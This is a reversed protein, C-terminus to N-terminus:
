YRWAVGMTGGSWNRVLNQPFIQNQYLFSLNIILRENYFPMKIYPNIIKNNVVIFNITTLTALDPSTGSGLICGIYYYPDHFTHRIDLLFLTSNKGVGPVFYFPRFLIRNSHVEKSITGTYMTFHQQSNIINYKGGVSFDFWKKLSVYAEAGYMQNPFLNPNNGFGIDLDLYINKNIQPYAEIEGQEAQNSLRNSYNVKGYVKGMRTERGYYLTSYDWIQKVDSIYYQQQYVGIENLYKKEVEKKIVAVNKIKKIHKKENITHKINKIKLMLEKNHKSLLLGKKALALAEQDHNSSMEVNILILRADIYTPTQQLVIMLEKRAKSLDKQNFYFRGLMLRVDGDTPHEKLYTLAQRIAKSHLGTAYLKEVRKYEPTQNVPMAATKKPNFATQVVGQNMTLLLPPREYPQTNLIDQKKKLLDPDIPNLLLGVNALILAEEDNGALMEINILVLRADIYNPSLLLVNLLEKRSNVYDKNDFYMQGLLLRVDSDIPHKKLCAIARPVAEADRDLAYREKLYDYSCAQDSIKIGTSLLSKSEDAQAITAIIGLLIMANFFTSYYKNM